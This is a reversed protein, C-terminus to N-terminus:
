ERRLCRSNHRAMFAAHEERPGSAKARPAVRACLLNQGLVPEALYRRHAQGCGASRAARPVMRKGSASACISTKSRSVRERVARHCLRDERAFLGAVEAENRAAMRDYYRDLAQLITM